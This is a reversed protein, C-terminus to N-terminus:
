YRVLALRELQHLCPVTVEVASEVPNRLAHMQLDVWLSGKRVTWVQSVREERHSTRPHYLAYGNLNLRFRKRNVDRRAECGWVFVGPWISFLAMNM